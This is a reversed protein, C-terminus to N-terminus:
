IVTPIQKPLPPSGKDCTESGMQTSLSSSPPLNSFVSWTELWLIFRSAIAPREERSLRSRNSADIQRGWGRENSAQAWSYAISALRPHTAKSRCLTSPGGAGAKCFLWEGHGRPLYAPAPPCCSTRTPHVRITWCVHLLTLRVDSSVCAPATSQRSSLEKDSATKVRGEIGGEVM